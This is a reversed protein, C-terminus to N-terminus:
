ESLLDDKTEFVLIDGSCIGDFEAIAVKRQYARRKGFLVQGKVFKRSFSTGEKILGWRKIHLSEPDIHELGVHREIGSALPDYESVDVNSVVDGFRVMRWRGPLKAKKNQAILQEIGTSTGLASRRWHPSYPM